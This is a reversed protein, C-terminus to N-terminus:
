RPRVLKKLFNPTPCPSPSPRPSAAVSACPVEAPTAEPAQELAQETAQASERAAATASRAPESSPPTPCALILALHQEGDKSREAYHGDTRHRNQAARPPPGQTPHDAGSCVQPSTGPSRPTPSKQGGGGGMVTAKPPLKMPPPAELKAILETKPPASFHVKQAVLFLILGIIAGHVVVAVATSKPDRKVAMRDIVAIPQSELVLPPLKVPFFVDRVSGVLSSFVGEDKTETAWIPGDAPRLTPAPHSQLDESPTLHLNEM